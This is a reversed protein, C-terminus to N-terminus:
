ITRGDSGNGEAAARERAYHVAAEGKVVEEAVRRFDAKEFARISAQNEKRIYAHLRRTPTEAFIKEAALDILVSGYGSGRNEAAVSVDILMEGGVHPDMRIQGVAKGESDECLLMCCKPDALKTRLWALHQEWPVPGRTFAAARAAPENVWEWLLRADSEQIRRLRCEGSLMARCARGAGNGDVM